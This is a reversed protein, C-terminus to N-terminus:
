VIPAEQGIPEPALIPRLQGSLVADVRELWPTAKLGAFLERAQEAVARVEPDSPGVALAFALEMQAANFHAGVDHMQRIAERFAGAADSRRGELAAVGAHLGLRTAGTFKGAVPASDLGEAAARALDSRRAWLAALGAVFSGARWILPEIEISRTAHDYSAEFAGHALESQARVFINAAQLQTDSKGKVEADLADIQDAVDEGREAAFGLMFRMLGIRDAPEPNLELGARLLAVADDWRGGMIQCHISWLYSMWIMMQRDGVKQALALGQDIVAWSARPDDDVTTSSFGKEAILTVAAPRRPWGSAARWCPM